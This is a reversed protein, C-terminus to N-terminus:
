VHRDIGGGLMRSINFARESVWLLPILACVIVVAYSAALTADLFTHLRTDIVRYVMVDGTGGLIEPTVFAGTTLLFVFVWVAMVSPLLQPLVIHWFVRTSSAGLMAATDIQRRDLGRLSTWIYFFGVPYFAHALGVLLGTRSYLIHNFPIRSGTLWSLSGGSQLTMVWGFTRVITPTLLPIMGV